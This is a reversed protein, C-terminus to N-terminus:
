LAGKGTFSIRVQGVRPDVDVQPTEISLGEVVMVTVGEGDSGVRLMRLDVRGSELERLIRRAPLGLPDGNSPMLPLSAAVQYEAATYNKIQTAGGTAGVMRHQQLIPRPPTISVIAADVPEGGILLTAAPPRAEELTAEYAIKQPIAGPEIRLSLPRAYIVRGLKDRLPEPLALCSADAATGWSAPDEPMDAEGAAAFAAELAEYRAVLATFASADTWTGDPEPLIKGLGREADPTFVGTIVFSTLSQAADHDGYTMETSQTFLFYGWLPDYLTTRPSSGPIPGLALSGPGTPEAAEPDVPSIQNFDVIAM